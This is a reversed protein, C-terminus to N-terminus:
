IVPFAGFRLKSRRSSPTEPIKAAFSMYCGLLLRGTTGMPFFPGQRM